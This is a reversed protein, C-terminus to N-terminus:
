ILNLGYGLSGIGFIEQCHREWARQLRVDEWEEAIYENNVYSEEDLLNRHGSGGVMDNRYSGNLFRNRYSGMRYSGTFFQSRYSGMHYSGMLFQSRYSGMRYSGMLFQNRYSGMHYSGMLFQNRYSGMHYSGMLFQNRYSGMHYSGMLFQNRYSGMHYSGMLFQNRYSGMRYSGTFFQNRYSGMHYSGTLFQNRYSGMHYSGMLFQNRYSGMHYSGALFQNRYSGIRYSGTFYKPMIKRVGSSNPDNVCKDAANWLIKDIEHNDFGVYYIAEPIIVGCGTFSVVYRKDMASIFIDKVYVRGEKAFLRVFVPVGQIEQSFMEAERESCYIQFGGDPLKEQLSQNLKGSWIIYVSFAHRLVNYNVCRFFAYGAHQIGAENIRKDYAAVSESEARVLWDYGKDM